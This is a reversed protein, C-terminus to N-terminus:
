EIVKIKIARWGRGPIKQAIFEVKAGKQLEPFSHTNGALGLWHFFIRTFVLEPSQIFGWGREKNLFSITGRIPKSSTQVLNQPIREGSSKPDSSM